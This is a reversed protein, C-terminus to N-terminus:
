VIYEKLFWGRRSMGEEMTTCAWEPIRTIVFTSPLSKAPCATGSSPQTFKSSPICDAQLCVPTHAQSKCFLTFIDKFFCAQSPYSKYRISNLQLMKKLTTHVSHLHSPSCLSKFQEWCGVSHHTSSFTALNLLLAAERFGSSGHRSM